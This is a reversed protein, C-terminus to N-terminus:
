AVKTTNEKLNLNKINERIKKLQRYRRVVRLKPQIEKLATGVWRQQQESNEWLESMISFLDVVYSIVVSQLEGFVLIDRFDHRGIDLKSTKTRRPFLIQIFVSIFENSL